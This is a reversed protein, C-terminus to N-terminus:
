REMIACLSSEVSDNYSKLKQHIRQALELVRAESEDLVDTIRKENETIISEIVLTIFGDRCTVDVSDVTNSFRIITSGQLSIRFHNNSDVLCYRKNKTDVMVITNKNKLAEDIIFGLEKEVDTVPANTGFFSTFHNKKTKELITQM